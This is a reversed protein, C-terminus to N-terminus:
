SVSVFFAARNFGSGQSFVKFGGVKCGLFGQFGQAQVDRLGFGLGKFGSGICADPVCLGLGEDRILVRFGSVWM